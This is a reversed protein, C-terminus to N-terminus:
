PKNGKGFYNNEKSYNLNFGKDCIEWAFPSGHFFELELDERTESRLITHMTKYRKELVHNDIRWM